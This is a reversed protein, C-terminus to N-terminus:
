CQGHVLSPNHTPFSVDVLQPVDDPDILNAPNRPDAHDVLIIGGRANHAHFYITPLPQWGALDKTKWDHITGCFNLAYRRTQPPLTTFM